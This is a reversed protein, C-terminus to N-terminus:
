PLRGTQPRLEIAHADAPPVFTFLHDDLPLNLEWSLVVTHQPQAPDQTTTIVLKRPLPRPGRQIWIQWDVDRQRFAYHDCPAGAVTSPGVDIAFLIDAIGSAETGWYFLDALPLEIDYRRAAVEVLERLTPPAAVTAYYHERPADVTFRQGDYFFRRSKRDSVLEAFFRDPRRIKLDARSHLQLKQGSQLVEDTTSEAKVLLSSQARLFGGMRELARVAAQDISPRDASAPPAAVPLALLAAVLAEPPPRMLRM